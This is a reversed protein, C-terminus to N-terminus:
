AMLRGLMSTTLTHDDDRVECYSIMDTPKKPPLFELIRLCGPGTVAVRLDPENLNEKWFHGTVPFYFMLPDLVFIKTEPHGDVKRGTKVAVTAAVHHSWAVSSKRLELHPSRGFAPRLPQGQKEISFTSYAWLKGTAWGRNAALLCIRHARYWCGDQDDIHFGLDTRRTLSLMFERLADPDTAFSGTRNIEPKKM